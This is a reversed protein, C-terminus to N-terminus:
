HLELARRLASDGVLDYARNAGLPHMFAGARVDRYARNLPHGRLAPVFSIGDFKQGEHPKLGAM